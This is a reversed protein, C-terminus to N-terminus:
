CMEVSFQFCDSLQPILSRLAWGAIETRGAAEEGGKPRRRCSKGCRKARLGPSSGEDPCHADGLGPRGIGEIADLAILAESFKLSVVGTDTVSAGTDIETSINGSDVGDNGSSPRLSTPLPPTRRQWWM